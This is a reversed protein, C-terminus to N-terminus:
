FWGKELVQLIKKVNEPSYEKFVNSLNEWKLMWIEMKKHLSKFWQYIVENAKEMEKVAKKEFKTKPEIKEWKEFLSKELLWKWVNEWKKWIWNDTLAKWITEDNLAYDIKWSQAEKSYEELKQFKQERFTTSYAAKWWRGSEPKRYQEM